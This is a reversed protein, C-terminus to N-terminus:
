RNNLKSSVHCLFARITKYFVRAGNFFSIIAFVYLAIDKFHSLVSTIGDNTSASFLTFMVVVSFFSYCFLEYVKKGDM